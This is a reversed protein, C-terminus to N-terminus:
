INLKGKQSDKVSKIKTKYIDTRNKTNRIKDACASYERLALGTGNAM